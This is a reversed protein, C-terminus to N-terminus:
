QGWGSKTQPALDIAADKARTLNVMDTLTGDPRRVRYMGSWEEDPLVTYGGFTMQLPARGSKPGGYGMSIEVTRSMSRVTSALGTALREKSATKPRLLRGESARKRCNDSCYRRGKHLTKKRNARARGSRLVLEFRSGCRACKRTEREIAFETV